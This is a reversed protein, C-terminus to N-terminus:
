NYCFKLYNLLIFLDAVNKSCESAPFLFASFTTSYTSKRKRIPDQIKEEPFTEKMWTLDDIDGLELIREIIFFWDNECSLKETDVDGFLSKKFRSKM